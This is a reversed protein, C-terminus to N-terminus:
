SSCEHVKNVRPMYTCISSFNYLTNLSIEVQPRSNNSYVKFEIFLLLLFNNPTLHEEPYVNSKLWNFM